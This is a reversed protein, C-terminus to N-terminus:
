RECAEHARCGLQCATCSWLCQKAFSPEFCLCCSLRERVRIRALLGGNPISALAFHLFSGIAAAIPSLGRCHLGPVELCSVPMSLVPPAGSTDHSASAAAVAVASAAAAAAAAALATSLAIAAIPM